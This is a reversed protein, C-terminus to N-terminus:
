HSEVSRGRARAARVASTRDGLLSPSPHGPRQFNRGCRVYYSRRGGGDLAGSRPEGGALDRRVARSRPSEGRQHAPHAPEAPVAPCARRTCVASVRCRSRGGSVGWIYRVWFTVALARTARGALRHVRRGRLTGVAALAGCGTTPSSTARGRRLALFCGQLAGVTCREFWQFDHHGRNSDPDRWESARM